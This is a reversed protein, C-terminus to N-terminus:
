TVCLVTSNMGLRVVRDHSLKYGTTQKGMSLICVYIDPPIYVQLRHSTWRSPAM